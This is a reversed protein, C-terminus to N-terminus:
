GLGARLALLIINYNPWQAVENTGYGLLNFTMGPPVERM